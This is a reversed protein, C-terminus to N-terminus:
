GPYFNKTSPRASPAARSASTLDDLVATPILTMNNPVNLGEERNDSNLWALFDAEKMTWLETAYIGFTQKFLEANNM